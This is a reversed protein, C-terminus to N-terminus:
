LGVQKREDTMRLEMALLHERFTERTNSRIYGRNKVLRSIYQRISGANVVKKVQEKDELQDNLIQYHQPYFAQYIENTRVPNIIAKILYSRNDKVMDRQSVSTYRDRNQIETM